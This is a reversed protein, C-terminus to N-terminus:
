CLCVCLIAQLSRPTVRSESSLCRSSSSLTPPGMEPVNTTLGALISDGLRSVHLRTASDSTSVVSNSDFQHPSEEGQGPPVPCGDGRLIDDILAFHLHWGTEARPSGAHWANLHRSLNASAHGVPEVHRHLWPLPARWLGVCMSALAFVRVITRFNAKRRRQPHQSQRRM